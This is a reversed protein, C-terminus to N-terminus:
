NNIKSIPPFFVEDGPKLKRFNHLKNIAAVQIYYKSDGYIRYCLLPLTDGNALKRYHTLDPSKLNDKAIRLGEEVSGKFSAKCIARIPTGDANFLKYAINLSTCRGKFLMTGWGLKFHRPEHSTSDVGTLMEKLNHVKEFVGDKNYSQGDIIGSSDFLFEFSIEEPGKLTFKKQSGSTGQGQGDKFEVKYDLAYTEPNIMVEFVDYPKAAKHGADMDPHTYAMIKMKELKGDEAM